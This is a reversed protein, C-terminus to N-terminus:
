WGVVQPLTFNLRRMAPPTSLPSTGCSRLPTGSFTARHRSPCRNSHMTCTAEPHRRGQGRPTVTIDRRTAINARVRTGRMANLNCTWTGRAIRDTLKPNLANAVNGNRARPLSILRHHHHWGQWLHSWPSGRGVLGVM